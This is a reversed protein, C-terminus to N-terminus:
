KEVLPALKIELDKSLNQFTEDLYRKLDEQAEAELNDLEQLRSKAEEQLANFDDLHEYFERTREDELVDVKTKLEEIQRNLNHLKKEMEVRYNGEAMM